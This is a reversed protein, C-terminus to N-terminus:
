FPIFRLSSFTGLGVWILGLCLAFINLKRDHSRFINWVAWIIGVGVFAYLVGGIPSWWRAVVWTETVQIGDTQIPRVYDSVVPHHLISAFVAPLAEPLVALGLLFLPVPLELLSPMRRLVSAVSRGAIYYGLLAALAIFSISVFLPRVMM